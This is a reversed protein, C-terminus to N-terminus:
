KWGPLNAQPPFPFKENMFLSLGWGLLWLHSVFFYYFALEGARYTSTRWYNGGKVKGFQCAVGRVQHEGCWFWVWEWVQSAQAAATTWEDAQKPKPESHRPQKTPSLELSLDIQSSVLPFILNSSVNMHMPPGRMRASGVQNNGRMPNNNGNYNNRNNNYGRQQQQQQQHQPQQHHNNNMM